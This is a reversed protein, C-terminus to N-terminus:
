RNYFPEKRLSDIDDQFTLVGYDHRNDVYQDIGAKRFNNSVIVYEHRETGHDFYNVYKLYEHRIYYTCHIVDVKHIGIKRKWRVDQYEPSDKFYGTELVTLHFNSYPHCYLDLMPGVVPLNAQSMNSLTIDSIFNDCDVVFYDLNQNLAYTISDQRIKGLITFRTKNWDHPKYDEVKKDVNTHDFFVSAYENGHIDLWRRLIDTTRDKNNNTRIYIHILSKPYKQNYICDLYYPLCHQKDKALIAILVQRDLKSDSSM